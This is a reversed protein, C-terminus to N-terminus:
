STPGLPFNYNGAANRPTEGAEHLKGIGRAIFTMATEVAMDDIHVGKGENLIEVGFVVEVAMNGYENVYTLTVDFPPIQDAYYPVQTSVGITKIASQDWLTWGNTPGVTYGGMPTTVNTAYDTYLWNNNQTNQSIVDAMADKNFNQFSLTGAIGRKGRSMSVPDKVGLVYIPAKERTISWSISLLNGFVCGAVVAKIDAGSFTTYAQQYTTAM